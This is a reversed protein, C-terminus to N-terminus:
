RRLFRAADSVSLLESAENPKFGAPQAHLINEAEVVLAPL